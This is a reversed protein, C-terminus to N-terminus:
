NFYNYFAEAIMEGNNPSFGYNFSKYEWKTVGTALNAIQWYLKGRFTEFYITGYIRVRYDYHFNYTALKISQTYSVIEGATFVIIGIIAFVLSGPMLLSLYAIIASATDGYGFVYTSTEGTYSMTYKRYLYAYIDPAHWPGAASGLLYYGDGYGSPSLGNNEVPEDYISTLTMVKQNIPIKETSVPKHITTNIFGNTIHNETSSKLLVTNKQDYIETLITKSSADAVSKQALIGNIYVKTTAVNNSKDVLATILEGNQNVYSFAYSDHNSNSAYVPLAGISVFL